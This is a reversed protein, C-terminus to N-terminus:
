LSVLTYPIIFTAFMGFMLGILSVDGIGLSDLVVGIGKGFGNRVLDGVIFVITGM